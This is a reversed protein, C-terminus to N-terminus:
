KGFNLNKIIVRPVPYQGALYKAIEENGWYDNVVLRNEHFGIWYGSTTEEGENTPCFIVIALLGWVISAPFVIKKDALFISNEDHFSFGKSLSDSHILKCRVVHYMLDSFDPSSITKRQGETIPFNEFITKDLNLGGLAMFEILWHYEKIIKKFISRSSSKERYYKQSTVDVGNCAHELAAYVEGRGMHDIAYKVREGISAM